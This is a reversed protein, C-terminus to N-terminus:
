EENIISDYCRIYDMENIIYIQGKLERSTSYSFFGKKNHNAMVFGKLKMFPFGLTKKVNYDLNFVAKGYSDNPSYIGMSKNDKGIDAEQQGQDWLNIHLAALSVEEQYFWVTLTVVVLIVIIILPLVIAAEVM